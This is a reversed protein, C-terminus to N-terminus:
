TLAPTPSLARWPTCLSPCLPDRRELGGGWGGTTTARCLKCLIVLKVFVGVDPRGERVGREDPLHPAGQAVADLEAGWFGGQAGGRRSFGWRQGVPHTDFGVLSPRTGERAAWAM